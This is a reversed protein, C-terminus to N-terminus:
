SNNCSYRRGWINMEDRFTRGRVGFYSIGLFGLLLMVWTSPEPVTSAFAVDNIDLVEDTATVLISTFPDTDTVGFFGPVAYSGGISSETFEFGNSLLFTVDAGDFTGFNLSLATTPTSLTILINTLIQTGGTQTESSLVASVVPPSADAGPGVNFFNSQSLAGNTSFIVGNFTVSATGTGFYDFGDPSSPNPITATAVNSVTANWSAIDSYTVAAAQAGTTSLLMAAASGAIWYSSNM